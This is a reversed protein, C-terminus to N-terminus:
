KPAIPLPPLEEGTRALAAGVIRVMVRKGREIDWQGSGSQVAIQVSVRDLAALLGDMLLPDISTDHVASFEKEIIQRFEQLAANRRASFSFDGAPQEAVLTRALSGALAMVSLYAEIGAYVKAVPDNKHAVAERVANTLVEVARDFVQAFLEDKNRFFKYFTRRSVGAQELISEVTTGEYGDRGFAVMAGRVIQLRASFEGTPRGRRRALNM